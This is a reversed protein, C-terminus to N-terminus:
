KIKSSYLMIISVKTSHELRLTKLSYGVASWSDISLGAWMFDLVSLELNERVMEVM